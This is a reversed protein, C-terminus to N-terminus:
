RKLCINDEADNSEIKLHGSIPMHTHTHSATLRFSNTLIFQAVTILLLSKPGNLSVIICKMSAQVSINLHTPLSIWIFYQGQM